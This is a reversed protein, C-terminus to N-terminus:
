LLRMVINNKRDKLINNYKESMDLHELNAANFFFDYIDLIIYNPASIDFNSVDFNKYSIPPEGGDVLMERFCFIDKKFVYHFSYLGGPEAVCFKISLCDNTFIDIIPNEKLKYLKDLIQELTKM